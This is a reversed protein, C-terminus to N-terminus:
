FGISYTIALSGFDNYKANWFLSEKSPAPTDEGETKTEVKGMFAHTLPQFYELKITNVVETSDGLEVGFGITAGFDAGNRTYNAVTETKVAEKDETDKQEVETTVSTKTFFVSAYPGACVFFRNEAGADLYKFASVKLTPTFNQIKTNPFQPVVKNEKAAEEKAEEGSTSKEGDASTEEVVAEVAPKITQQSFLTNLSVLYSGIFAKENVKTQYGLGAGIFIPASKSLLDEAARQAQLSLLFHNKNEFTEVEVPATTSAFAASLM